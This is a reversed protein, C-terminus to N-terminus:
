QTEIDFRVQFIYGEKKWSCARFLFTYHIIRTFVNLKLFMYRTKRKLEHIFVHRHMVGLEEILITISFSRM